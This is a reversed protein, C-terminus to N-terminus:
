SSERLLDEGSMQHLGEVITVNQKDRRQGLVWGMLIPISATPGCAKRAQDMEEPTPIGEM